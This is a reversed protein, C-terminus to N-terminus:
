RDLPVRCERSAASNTAQFEKRWQPSVETFNPDSQAERWARIREYRRRHTELLQLALPDSIEPLLASSMAFIM